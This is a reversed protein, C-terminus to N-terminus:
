KRKAKKPGHGAGGRATKFQEHLAQLLAYADAWAGRAQPPWSAPPEAGERWCESLAPWWPKVPLGLGVESYPPHREFYDTAAADSEFLDALWEEATM